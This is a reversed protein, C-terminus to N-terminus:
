AVPERSPRAHSRLYYDSYTYAADKELQAASVAVGLNHAPLTDLIRRLEAVIQRRALRLSSVVLLGEVKAALTMADGVHLLPPADLLVYEYRERLRQLIQTVAQTAVFEGADPPTPGCAVVDVVGEVTATGNGAARARASGEGDAVSVHAIADELEVHGLVVDTLGPVSGLQFFRDLFPRRVDLDVLVVRKGARAFAVALNAVTTSKGESELASTVMITRAGRDVNAFEVNTRLVRFAEAYAATPEALMVLEDAARLRRPPEPIRGLLPLGLRQAIEEASRVRTDLAERLLGLGIGVVLGLALGLIANRRPTPKVQTAADAVRVVRANGIQLAELTRLEQEREVLNAILRTRGPREARLTAIRDELGRRAARYAVTDLERRYRTFARAYASALRSALEPDGDSVTFVLLDSDRKPSVSLAALLQSPTRAIGTASIVREAVRPVRALDAQTRAVREADQFALPDQTNTLTAALSQRSLLVEASAEYLKSQQLTFFVVALQILIATPFIVWMRRRLLRVYGLLTASHAPGDTV